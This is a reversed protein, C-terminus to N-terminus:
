LRHTTENRDGHEKADQWRKRFEKWCDIGTFVLSAGLLVMVIVLFVIEWSESLPAYPASEALGVMVLSFQVGIMMFTM